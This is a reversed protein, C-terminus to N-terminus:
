LKKPDFETWTQEVIKWGSRRNRRAFVFLYNGKARIAKGGKAPAMVKLDNFYGEAIEYQDNQNLMTSM